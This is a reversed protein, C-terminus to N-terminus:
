APTKIPLAHSDRRDMTSLREHYLASLSGAVRGGDWFSLGGRVADAFDAGAEEEVM